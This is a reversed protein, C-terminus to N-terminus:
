ASDHGGEKKRQRFAKIWNMGYEDWGKSLDAM